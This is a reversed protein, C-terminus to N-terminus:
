PASVLVGSRLIMCALSGVGGVDFGLCLTIQSTTPCIRAPRRSPATEAASGPTSRSPPEKIPRTNLWVLKIPIQHPKPVFRQRIRVRDGFNRRLEDVRIQALYAWVCLLDSFYDITVPRPDSM